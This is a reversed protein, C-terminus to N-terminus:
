QELEHLLRLIREVTEVDTGVFEKGEITVRFNKRVDARGRLWVELVRLTAGGGVFSVLLQVAAQGDFPRVEVPEFETQGLLASLEALDQRDEVDVGVLM